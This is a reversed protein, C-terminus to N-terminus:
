RALEVLRLRTRQVSLPVVAPIGALDRAARDILDYDARDITEGRTLRDVAARLTSEEATIRAALADLHRVTATTATYAPWTVVSVEHLRVEILERRSLDPAWDDKSVTFGFSMSDLDGRKLLAAVDRGTTTDSLVAEALLGREDEALTLTGNKRRALPMSADHFGLLRIDRKEGITKAFAGPRIREIWPLPESDSNFVAAYGRFSMGDGDRLELDSLTWERHEVGTPREIIPDM